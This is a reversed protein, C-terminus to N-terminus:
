KSSKEMEESIYPRVLDMPAADEQHVGDQM